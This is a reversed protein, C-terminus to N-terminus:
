VTIWETKAVNMLSPIPSKTTSWEPAAMEQPQPTELNYAREAEEGDIRAVKELTYERNLVDPWFLNVIRQKGDLYTTKELENEDAQRSIIEIDWKWRMLNSLQESDLYSIRVDKGYSDSMADEEKAVEYGTPANEMWSMFRISRYGSKGSKKFQTSVLAKKHKREYWVEELIKKIGDIEKEVQKKVPVEESLTWHSYISSIRLRALQEELDMLGQVLNFLKLITNKKRELLETATKIGVPEGSFADDVTKDNMITKVIDIFQTDTATITRSEIPLLPELQNARLGAILRGSYLLGQPLQYGTNNGMTPKGSQLMKQVVANYVADFMKGDIITNAPIGKAYAFGTMIEADWKAIPIEGSPSIEFLSYEMPLMTIGNVIVQYTKNKNNYVHLVWFTYEPKMLNWYDESWWVGQYWRQDQQVIQDIQTQCGKWKTEKVYKWRDWRWFIDEAQQFTLDEWVCVIDQKQIDRERINGLFVNKGPIMQREFTVEYKELPYKDPKFDSVKDTVKWSGNSRIKIPKKVLAERVFVNGQTILEQYIDRRARTKYREVELTKRILDETTEWLDHVMNDDEDYAQIDPVFEFSMLHSVISKDKTRTSGTTMEYRSTISDGNNQPDILVQMNTFALDAERNINYNASYILNNFEKYRKERQDRMEQLRQVTKKYYKREEETIEKWFSQM